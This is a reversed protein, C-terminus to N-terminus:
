FFGGYYKFEGDYDVVVTDQDFVQRSAIVRAVPVVVRKEIERKLFRAGYKKDFGDLLIQKEASPSIDIHVVAKSNKIVQEQFKRIELKLISKIDERTLTNFVVIDDLRNLFEPMFKRRAASKSIDALQKRSLDEATPSLFGLAGDGDSQKAMDASGVNSTMIIITSTLDVRENTGLTLTGKDLIGLLLSWLADSAKEIEDFLLVTFPFEPTQLAAIKATTIFPTTERHGLYGPPSGVLKAIEHSHQFEACDIKLMRDPTGFLGTVFVEASATKGTGTPGLFLLSAIPKTHDYIGSQFKELVNSFAKTVEPQGFIYSSFRATLQETRESLKTVDLVKKPAM